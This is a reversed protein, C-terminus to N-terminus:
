VIADDYQTFSHSAPKEGNVLGNLNIFVVRADNDQLIYETKLKEEDERSEYLLPGSSLAAPPTGNNETRWLWSKRDNVSKIKIVLNSLFIHRPRM